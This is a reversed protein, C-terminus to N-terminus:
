SVVVYEIEVYAEGPVTAAIGTHRVIVPTNAPIERQVLPVATAGGVASGNVYATSGAIQTGAVTTGIRINAGAVTGADETAYVIRATLLQVAQSHRLVVDDVTVGAGNDIDFLRSRAIRRRQEGRLVYTSM